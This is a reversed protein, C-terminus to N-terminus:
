KDSDEERALRKGYEIIIYDVLDKVNEVSSIKFHLDIIDKMNKNDCLYKLIEDALLYQVKERDNDMLKLIDDFHGITLAIGDRVIGTSKLSEIENNHEEETHLIFYADIDFQNSLKKLMEVTITHCSGDELDQIHKKTSGVINGLELQSLGQKERLNKLINGTTKTWESTPESDNDNELLDSLSKNLACAIKKITELNPEREGKEYRTITAPSVGLISALEKRTMGKLERFKIIRDGINLEIM